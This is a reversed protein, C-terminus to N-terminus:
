QDDSFNLPNMKVDTQILGGTVLSDGGDSWIVPELFCVGRQPNPVWLDRGWAPTRLWSLESVPPSDSRSVTLVLFFNGWISRLSFITLNSKWFLSYSHNWFLLKFKKWAKFNLKRIRTPTVRLHAPVELDHFGGRLHILKDGCDAGQKFLM